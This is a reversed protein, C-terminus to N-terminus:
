RRGGMSGPRNGGMDGPRNGGMGGINGISTTISTITFTQDTTGNVQITYTEGKKFEPSAIVLSNYSKSSQYSLIEKAESDLIAITTAANYSTSFAIQVNYISSSNSVGQMMGSSGGAFLTGGNVIFDSDYDLAGNGSDSPGDVKVTGGNMYITGNVDIGDGSANVYITGDNITLINDTTNSYRNEGPRGMASSDTGGAVNIGDDSSVVSIDGGNITIKASEIGEYSKTININGSDIMLETDAHIGDDGSTITFTGGKIGISDNSHIADDSSNITFTGGQIVLNSGSKMGKASDPYTQNTTSGRGWMGWSTSTSANGSGGGTTISFDGNEVLLKTEAQIGDLDATIEFTGNEIYVYGKESDTDNTSKIGDGGSTIKFNGNQIYVSDKGRIGDDTSTIEYTGSVFKLDDKSVIGDEHNSVVVLTGEGTLTLDDHSFITGIEDAEYGNYNKGDELYNATGEVTEIVVDSAEEVYIAPGSSNTINVNNLVLKINGSTRITILGDEITGTLRYVGEETLVISETLTYDTNQYNAWNIKEDDDDTNVNADISETTSNSLSTKDNKQLAFWIGIGLLLVLAFVTLNKKM